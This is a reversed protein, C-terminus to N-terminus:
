SVDKGMERQVLDIKHLFNEVQPLTVHKKNGDELEIVARFKFNSSGREETITIM